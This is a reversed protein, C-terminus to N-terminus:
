KVRKTGRNQQNKRRKRENELEDHNKKKKNSHEEEIQERKKIYQTIMNNCEKIEILNGNWLNQMNIKGKNFIKNCENMHEYNEIENCGMRCELDNYKGPFNIKLDTMRVRNKFIDQKEKVTKIINNPILYDTM